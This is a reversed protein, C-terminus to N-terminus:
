QHQHIARCSREDLLMTQYWSRSQKLYEFVGGVAMGPVCDHDNTQVLEQNVATRLRNSNIFAFSHRWFWADARTTGDEGDILAIAKVRSRFELKKQGYLELVSSTGVSFGIYMVRRASSRFIIDEWVRCVHNAHTNLTRGGVEDHNPDCLIVAWGEQLARDIYPFQTALGWQGRKGNTFLKRAWQGPSVEGSGPVIVLLNPNWLVDETMSVRAHYLGDGVWGDANSPISCQLFRYRNCLRHFIFEKIQRQVYEYHFSQTAYDFLNGNSDVFDMNQDFHWGQYLFWVWSFIDAM